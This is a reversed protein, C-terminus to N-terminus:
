LQRPPHTTARAPHVRSRAASATRAAAAGPLLRLLMRLLSVLQEPCQRTSPFLAELLSALVGLRSAEADSWVSSESGQESAQELMQTLMQTLGDLIMGPRAEALRGIVDCAFRGADRLAEVEEELEEEENPVLLEAVGGM